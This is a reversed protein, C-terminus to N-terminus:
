KNPAPGPPSSSSPVAESGSRSDSTGPPKPPSAARAPPAPISPPTPATEPPLLSKPSSVGAIESGLGLKQLSPADLKGSPELGNASQFKGLAAVTDADWKGTPDGKYYGSRALASQIESIREATPAKQTPGRPTARSKRRSKKKKPAAASLKASSNTATSPQRSYPLAAAPGSPLGAPGIWALARALLRFGSVLDNSSARRGRSHFPPFPLECLSLAARAGSLPPRGAEGGSPCVLSSAAPRSVPVSALFLSAAIRLWRM